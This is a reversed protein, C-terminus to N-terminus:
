FFHELFFTRFFPELFLCLKLITRLSQESETKMREISIQKGKTKAVLSVQNLM